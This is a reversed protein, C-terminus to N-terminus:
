TKIFIIMNSASYSVKWHLSFCILVLLFALLFLSLFLVGVSIVQFFCLACDKGHFVGTENM